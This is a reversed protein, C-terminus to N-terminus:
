DEKPLAHAPNVCWCTPCSLRDSGLRQWGTATKWIPTGDHKREGRWTWCYPPNPDCEIWDEPEAM